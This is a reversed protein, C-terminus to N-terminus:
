AASLAHLRMRRAQLAVEFPAPGVLAASERTLCDLTEPEGRLQTLVACWDEVTNAVLRCGQGDRLAHVYAPVASAVTPLGIAAYDLVKIHSKCANFANEVLPAVGVSFGHQQQLWHVFGPYSAGIFNQPSLVSMWPADARDHHRIGIVTLSFAGPHSQQLQDMVRSLFAFDQEHTRTGMYLLRFTDSPRCPAFARGLDWISPDLANELAHVSGASERMVRQALAPTSCWVEHAVKLSGSVAETMHRYAEGEGHSDMDLLNDDLDYLLTAELRGAVAQLAQLEKLSPVSIRHWAIVHPRYRELEEPFLVRYEIEGRERLAEFYPHMRISACPSLNAGIREPLLAVRLRARGSSAQRRTGPIERLSM